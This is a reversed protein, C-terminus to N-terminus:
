QSGFVEVCGRTCGDVKAGAAIPVFVHGTRPDVAVSHASKGSPVNGIWADRRADVVGLVPGHPNAVAALYYRRSGPDFWVEDSGGVQAITAVVKRTHLDVILSRPAFGAAIADDSCGVLLRDAPGLALGAPMCQRVHIVDVQRHTVPNVVAIGGDVRHHDFEPIAVYVLGDLPNWVPQELGDTAGPFSLRGVVRHDPATSVFTVFPPRDRNNAAIVEHDRGDYTLEDVRQKGGTDITAVIKRARIDIVRLKSDGDGAWFQDDGVAALGSPGGTFGAARGVFRNGDAQILDVAHNSRDSFGYINQGVSFGSIDFHELPNGPIAITSIRHLPGIAQGGAAWSATAMAVLAACLFASLLTRM